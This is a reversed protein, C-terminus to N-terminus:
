SSVGDSMDALFPCVYDDGGFFLIVDAGYRSVAGDEEPSSEDVSSMEPPEKRYKAPCLVPCAVKVLWVDM